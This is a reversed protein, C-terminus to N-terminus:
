GPADSAERRVAERDEVGEPVVGVDDSVRVVAVLHDTHPRQHRLLHEPSPLLQQLREAEVAVLLPPQVGGAARGERPASARILDPRRALYEAKPRILRPM